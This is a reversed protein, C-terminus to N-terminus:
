SFLSPLAAPPEGKREMGFDSIKNKNMRHDSEQWDAM